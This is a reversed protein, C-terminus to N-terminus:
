RSELAPLTHRCLSRREILRPELQTSAPKPNRQQVMDLLCDVATTAIDGIPQAIVTLPPNVSEAARFDDIGCVGIDAPCSLGADRVAELALLTSDNTLGVLVEPATRGANVLREALRERDDSALRLPTKYVWQVSDRSQLGVRLGQLRWRLTPDGPTDPTVVAVRRYGLQRLYNGLMSGAHHNDIGVYPLASRKIPRDILVTPTNLRRTNVDNTASPALILGDVDWNLMDDVLREQAAPQEGTSAMLLRYNVQRLASEIDSALQAFFSNAIDPVVLGIMMSRGLRLARGTKSPQYGLTEAAERVAVVTEPSYRHNEFARNLIRSVTSRDVGARQAVDSATIRRNVSM